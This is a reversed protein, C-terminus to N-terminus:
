NSKNWERWRTLWKQHSEGKLRKPENEKPKFEQKAAYDLLANRVSSQTPTYDLLDKGIYNDSLSDLLKTVPINNNLGETFKTFMDQRFLSLRNNYNEDFYKSSASGEILPVVKDIFEFFQKHSKNLKLDAQGEIVNSFFNDDDLNIQGDGIRETISKAENEGPLMFTQFSNKIENNLIKKIIKDNVLYDTDLSIKKDLFKNNLNNIQNDYEQNGTSYNVLQSPDIGIYGNNAGKFADAVKRKSELLQKNTAFEVAKNQFVAIERLESRLKKRAEGQINPYNKNDDLSSLVGFANKLAAQKAMTTEVLAPFNKRYENYNAEGIIGDTVLGKYKTLASESLIDFQLKNGSSVANLIDSAVQQEVQGVRATVLNDRTKKLINNVYVNKNQSLLMDFTNAVNKNSAQAKYKQKITQFKENFYDVGDQPTSKLEAQEAANFIEVTADANLEGAKVKTEIAKEKVYYDEAAKGIPRLAAAINQRPDIQINSTVSAAEGTLRARSTFTPIKM